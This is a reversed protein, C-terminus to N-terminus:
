NGAFRALWVHHERITTPFRLCMLLTAIRHHGELLHFPTACVAGWDTNVIADPHWLIVPPVPWTGNKAVFDILRITREDDSLEHRRLIRAVFINENFCPQDIQETTLTYRQFQLARFNLWGNNILTDSHEFFWQQIVEPPFNPLASLVRNCYATKSELPQGHEDERLTLCIRETGSLPITMQQLNKLTFLQKVCLATDVFDCHTASDCAQRQSCAAYLGTFISM